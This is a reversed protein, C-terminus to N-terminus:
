LQFRLPLVARVRVARGNLMAPRFRARAAVKLAERDLVASGTSAVIRADEVRGNELVRLDVVATRGGGLGELQARHVRMADELLAAIRGMNSVAPPTVAAPEVRAIRPAPGAIVHLHISTSAGTSRQRRVHATLAKVVEDAYERALSPAPEIHVLAGDAGFEVTFVPAVEEGPLPAIVSLAAHLAASDVYATLPRDDGALRLADQAWAARPTHCLLALVLVAFLTRM